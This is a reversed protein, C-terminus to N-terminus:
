TNEDYNAALVINHYFMRETYTIPIVGFHFLHRHVQDQSCVVLGFVLHSLSQIQHQEKETELLIRSGQRHGGLCGPFGQLPGRDRAAAAPYPAEGAAGVAAGSLRPRPEYQSMTRRHQIEVRRQGSPKYEISGRKGILPSYVSAASSGSSSSETSTLRSTRVCISGTRFVGAPPGGGGGSSSSCSAESVLRQRRAPNEYDDSYTRRQDRLKFPAVVPRSAAAAAALLVVDDANVPEFVQEKNSCSSSSRRSSMTPPEPLKRRISGSSSQLSRVSCISVRTSSTSPNSSSSTTRDNFELEQSNRRVPAGSEIQKEVLASEEEELLKYQQQQRTVSQHPLSQSAQLRQKQAPPQNQQQQQQQQQQANQVHLPKEEESSSKSIWLLSRDSDRRVRKPWETETKFDYLERLRQKVRSDDPVQAEDGRDMSTSTTVHTATSATAVPSKVTTTTMTTTTTTTFMTDTTTSAPEFKRVPQWGGLVAGEKKRQEDKLEEPTVTDEDETEEEVRPTQESESMQRESMRRQAPSPTPNRVYTLWRNPSGPPPQAAGDSTRRGILPSPIYRSGPTIGTEPMWRYSLMPVVPRHHHTDGLNVYRENWRSSASDRRASMMYSVDASHSRQSQRIMAAARQSEDEFSLDARCTGISYRAPVWKAVPEAIERGSANTRRPSLREVGPNYYIHRSKRGTVFDKDGERNGASDNGGVIKTKALTNIVNERAPLSTRKSLPIWRSVEGAETHRRVEVRKEMYKKLCDVDASRSRQNRPSRSPRRSQDANGLPSMQDQTRCM